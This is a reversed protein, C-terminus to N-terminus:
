LWSSPTAALQLWASSSCLCHWARSDCYVTSQSVRMTLAERYAAADTSAPPQLSAASAQRAHSCLEADPMSTHRCTCSQLSEHIGAQSCFSMDPVSRAPLRLQTVHCAGWQRGSCLCYRGAHAPRCASSHCCQQPWGARSCFGRNPMPSCSAPAAVTVKAPNRAPPSDVCPMEAQMHGACYLEQKDYWSVEPSIHGQLAYGGPQCPLVGCLIPGCWPRDMGSGCSAAAAAAAACERPATFRGGGTQLQRPAAGCQLSWSQLKAVQLQLM